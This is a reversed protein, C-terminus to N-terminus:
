GHGLLRAVTRALERRDFTRILETDPEFRTMGHFLEWLREKIQFM